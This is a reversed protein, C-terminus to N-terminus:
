NNKAKYYYTYGGQITDRTVLEKETLKLIYFHDVAKSSLTLIGANYKWSTETPKKNNVSFTFGNVDKIFEIRFPKRSLLEEGEKIYKVSTWKKTLLQITDAHAKNNEITIEKMPVVTDQVKETQEKMFPVSDALIVSTTDMATTPSHNKSNSDQCAFLASSLFFILILRM